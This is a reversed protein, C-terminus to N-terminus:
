KWISEAVDLLRKHESYELLTMALLLTLANTVLLTSIINFPHEYKLLVQIKHFLDTMLTSSSIYNSFSFSLTFGRLSYLKKNPITELQNFKEWHYSLFIDCGYCTSFLMLFFFSKNLKKKKKWDQCVRTM